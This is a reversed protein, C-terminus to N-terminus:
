SVQLYITRAQVDPEANRAFTKWLSAWITSSRAHLTGPPIERSPHCPIVTRMETGPRWWIEHSGGAQRLFECDQKRLSRALERYRM